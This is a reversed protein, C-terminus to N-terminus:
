ARPEDPAARLRALWQAWEEALTPWAHQANVHEVQRRLKAEVEAGDPETLAQVVEEVFRDLYAAPDLDVPVLRAFGATTEPLAARHSTVVRCGAAMAELVAICSTEPYTNPYALVSAAKLAAAVEPQPRGGLYEVGETERCRRYLPGFRAQEEAGPLQYVQMGSFVKLTSGPVARRIRPFADLLLELGRYPTSTYALVPPRAKPALIPEGGAFLGAFAPAIGNRRVASREPPLGFHQLYQQRQWASVLAFGDFAARQAPDYLPEVAPQDVAHGTWLVLATPPPLAARLARGPGAGSVVVLADLAPLRRFADAALRLCHVGRTRGPQSTANLLFVDHGAGALAEALYCLASETGGLPVRYASDVTFDLPSYCAFAIRLCKVAFPPPGADPTAEQPPEAQAPLAHGPMEESRGQTRLLLALNRRAEAHDPALALVDRLAQEAGALDQNEMLLAHSLVVRPWLAQPFRRIADALLLRAEVFRGHALHQRARLVAAEMAAEPDQDLRAMAREWEPWRRGELYLDAMGVWAAKLGPEDALVARWQAEAAAHRKQGLYILALAHRAQIQRARRQEPTGAEPAELFRLLPAEAAAADGTESLLMGYLYLLPGDAPCHGCGTRYVALAESRRGHGALFLGLNRWAEAQHPDTELLERLAQEAAAPDRDEQLLAYTLLVRPPVARPARRVAEQFLPRAAGPEKRALRARGRLLLAEVGGPADAPLRALAEETDAHRGQDLYLEALGLRAPTYDPQEALAAQWEAEAEEPRGRQRALVGLHHRTRYGRLAADLSAFYEAPPAALVQRLRGVAGELDGREQLLMGELFLLEVDDPCRARGARCAALADEPRGLRQHGHVMLAYLKRVLSDGPACGALSCQLYDLARAPQGMEQYVWGLNFLTFSDDPQEREELLLLRLNRENKQRRLAPDLYGTHAIGIGTWHVPHGARRLAPLIQEHVRYSWRIAPHNRFLRVQYVETASDLANEPTSRQAMVYAADEGDLRTRLARFKARNDDDFHEDADLWLVWDGSAHRLSENRAAAFSDQWAFDFVRAGLSAAVEKTRDTSGTDVVIMEDVLDAASPLCTALNGEENKAILCLSVKPPM